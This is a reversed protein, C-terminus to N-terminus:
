STLLLITVQMCIHVVLTVIQVILYEDLYGTTGSTNVEIM